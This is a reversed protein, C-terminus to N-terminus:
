VMLFDPEGRLPICVTDSVECTWLATEIARIHGSHLVWQEGELLTCGNASRWTTRTFGCMQELQAEAPLVSGPRELLAVGGRYRQEMCDVWPDTRFPGPAALKRLCVRWSRDDQGDILVPHSNLTGHQRMGTSGFRM